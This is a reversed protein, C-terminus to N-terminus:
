PIAEVFPESPCKRTWVARPRSRFYHHRHGTGFQTQMLGPWYIWSDGNFGLLM